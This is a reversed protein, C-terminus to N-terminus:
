YLSRSFFSYAHISRTELEQSECTNSEIGIGDIAKVSPRSGFLEDMAEFYQFSVRDYGSISHNRKCKYYM